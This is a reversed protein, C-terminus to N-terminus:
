YGRIPGILRISRGMTMPTTVRSSVVQKRGNSYKRCPQAKSCAPNRQGLMAIKDTIFIEPSHWAMAFAEEATVCDGHVDNGWMSLKPPKILHM